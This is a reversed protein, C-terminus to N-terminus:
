ALPFIVAYYSQGSSQIFLTSGTFTFNRGDASSVSISSIQGTSNLVIASTTGYSWITTYANGQIIIMAADFDASLSVSTSGNGVWSRTVAGSSGGSGGAGAHGVFVAM